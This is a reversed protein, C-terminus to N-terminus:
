RYDGGRWPMNFIESGHFNVLSDQFSGDSDYSALMKEVRSVGEYPQLAGSLRILEGLFAGNRFVGLPKPSFWGDIRALQTSSVFSGDRLFESIRDQDHDFVFLRDEIVQIGDISSFEGPGMGRGGVKKLLNGDIGYFQLAHSGGNAVVITDGVLVAGAVGFLPDESTGIATITQTDLHSPSEQVSDNDGGCAGAGLCLIMAGWLGMLVPVKRGPSRRSETPETSWNSLTM